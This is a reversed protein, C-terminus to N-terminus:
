FTKATDLVSLLDSNRGRGFPMDASDPQGQAVLRHLRRRVAGLELRRHLQPRRPQRQPPIDAAAGRGCDHRHGCAAHGAHSGRGLPQGQAEPLLAGGADDADAVAPVGGAHRHGLRPHRVM